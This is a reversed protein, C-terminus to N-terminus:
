AIWVTKQNVFERIGPYALERGYGSRKTGGFPLRPDSKTMGNIFVAGAEIRAALREALELDKTWLSAGLGYPTDNALRVADQPDKAPIIVSVPGFTEEDFVPMGKRVNAILTPEYFLSHDDRRKGGCLIKAGMEVSRNVQNEINELLDPRAMPGMETEEKMPDGLVMSELLRKQEEMFEELVPEEVIFRKASICVQGANLFRSCVGTKCSVNFEADKLVIYPDSGGLELVSKKLYKGAQAAVISGARQSGTLTVGEVYPHAIVKESLEVPIILNTFANEPFGAELFLQEIAKACGIVNPAHKLIFTNGAMMTPVAARFAQWFPFNWPMIGYVIGTPDFRLYSKGADTKFIEPKLMAEAHEAYHDCLWACKEIEARSESIIKGMESTILVAFTEKGKRLLEALKRFLDGRQSFSFNKWQSFTHHTQNILNEVDKASHEQHEFIVAGTYPNISQFM